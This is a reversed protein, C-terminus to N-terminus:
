RPIAVSAIRPRGAICQVSSIAPGWGSAGALLDAADRAQSELYKTAKLSTFLPPLSYLCAQDRPLLDLAAGGVRGQVGQFLLSGDAGQCLEYVGAM